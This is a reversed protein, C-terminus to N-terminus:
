QTDPKHLPDTAHQGSSGTEVLPFSSALTMTQAFSDSIRPFSGSAKMYDNLVLFNTNTKFISPFKENFLLEEECVYGM